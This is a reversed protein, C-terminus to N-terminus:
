EVGNLLAEGIHFTGQELRFGHIMQFITEDFLATYNRQEERFKDNSIIRGNKALAAVILMCVDEPINPVLAQIFTVETKEDIMEILEEFDKMCNLTLHIVNRGKSENLHQIFGNISAKSDKISHFVNPGDYITLHEVDLIQEKWNPHQNVSGIFSQIDSFSKLLLFLWNKVSEQEKVENGCYIKIAEIIAWEVLGVPSPLTPYDCADPHSIIQLSSLHFLVDYPDDNPYSVYERDIKDVYEPNKYVFRTMNRFSIRRSLDTDCLPLIEEHLQWITDVMSERHEELWSAYDQLAIRLSMKEESERSVRVRKEHLLNTKSEFKPGRKTLYDIFQKLTMLVSTHVGKQEDVALMKEYLELLEECHPDANLDYWRILRQLTMGTSKLDGFKEHVEVLELLSIREKEIDVPGTGFEFNHLDTKANAYPWKEELKESLRINEHLLDLIRESNTNPHFRLAKILKQIMIFQGFDNNLYQELKIKRELFSVLKETNQSSSNEELRILKTLTRATGDFDKLEANVDLMKECMSRYVDTDDIGFKEAEKVSRSLTILITKSNKSARASANAKELTHEFGDRNTSGTSNFWSLKDLLVIRLGKDNKQARELQEIQDLLNWHSEPELAEALLGLSLKSTLFWSQFRMEINDIDFSALKMWLKELYNISLCSKGAWDVCDNLKLMAKKTNQSILDFCQNM